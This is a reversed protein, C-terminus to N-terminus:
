RPREDMMKLMEYRKHSIFLSISYLHQPMAAFYRFLPQAGILAKSPMSTDAALAVTARVKRRGYFHRRAGALLRRRAHLARRPTLEDYGHAPM